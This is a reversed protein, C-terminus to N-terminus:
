KTIVEGDLMIFGKRKASSNDSDSSISCMEIDEESLVDADSEPNSLEETIKRWNNSKELVSCDSARLPTLRDAFLNLTRM